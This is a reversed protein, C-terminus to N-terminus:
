FGCAKWFQERDFGGFHHGENPRTCISGVDKSDGCHWCRSNPPNDAIFHEKFDHAILKVAEDGSLRTAATTARAGRLIRAVDEYHQKTYRSM